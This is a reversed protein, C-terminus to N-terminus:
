SHAHPRVHCGNVATTTSPTHSLKLSNLRSLCIM